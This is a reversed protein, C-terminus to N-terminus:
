RTWLEKYKAKWDSVHRHAVSGLMRNKPQKMFAWLTDGSVAPMGTGTIKVLRPKGDVTEVHAQVNTLLDGTDGVRKEYVYFDVVARGEITLPVGYDLDSWPVTQHLDSNDKGEMEGPFTLLNISITDKWDVDPARTLAYREGIEIAIAQPKLNESAAAVARIARKEDPTAFWLKM